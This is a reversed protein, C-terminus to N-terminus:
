LRQLLMGAAAPVNALNRGPMTRTQCKGVSLQTAEHNEPKPFAEVQTMPQYGILRALLPAEKTRPYGAGCSSHGHERSADAGVLFGPKNVGQKSVFANLGAYRRRGPGIALVIRAGIAQEYAMAAVAERFKVVKRRFYHALAQCNSTFHRHDKCLQAAGPEGGSMFGKLFLIKIIIACLM